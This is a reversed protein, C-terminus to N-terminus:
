CLPLCLLNLLALFTSSRGDDWLDQLHQGRSGAERKFLVGCRVEGENIMSWGYADKRLEECMGIERKGKSDKM